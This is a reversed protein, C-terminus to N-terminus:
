EIQHAMLVEQEMLKALFQQQPPAVQRGLIAMVRRTPIGWHRATQYTGFARTIVIGYVKPMKAMLFAPTAMTFIFTNALPLRPLPPSKSGFSPTAPKTGPSLKMIWYNVMPTPSVFTKVPTRPKLTFTLSAPTLLNLWLPFISTHPM